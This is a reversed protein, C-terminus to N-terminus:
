IQYFNTTLMQGSMPPDCDLRHLTANTDYYMFSLIWIDDVELGNTFQAIIM